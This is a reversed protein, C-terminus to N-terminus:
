LGQLGYGYSQIIRRGESAKLFDMFAHAASNEKAKALIVADQHIPLHLDEPVLWVSGSTLAGNKIVQSSAVFGLEANGTSVFQYTQAINEGQVLKDRLDDSLSLAKIVEMAAKGYPALRPNALAIKKYKDTSLVSSDGSILNEDESWLALRGTAYTFRSQPLALGNTVLAAPKERDASLFIDFPAGNSIQAYFRGSSGLILRVEYDSKAEFEQVLAAVTEAFNSASAITLSEAVVVNSNSFLLILSAGYFAKRFRNNM